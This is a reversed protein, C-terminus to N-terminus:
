DEIISATIFMVVESHERLKNRFRFLNGLLPLDGLIPVKRLEELDSDLILGGIVITEGSKVRVVHDTFRRTIIPLTVAAEKDETLKLVSVEPHLNLTIYGDPSVDGIVRLQVGVNAVDTTVNTGTPTVQVLVIYHVEDGVFFVGPKGELCMLSPSALLRGNGEKIIADLTAAFDFPARFWRRTGRTGESTTEVGENWGIASWDWSLGLKKEGTESLSTVKAEIKIQPPKTDLSAAMDIAKQVNPASGSIVLAQPRSEDKKGSDGAVNVVAGTESAKVESPARLDFGGSPAFTVSIGSVLSMLTQALEQANVHKVLYVQTVEDGARTKMSEEVQNVVTQAQSVISEPGTLVILNSPAGPAPGAGAGAPAPSKVSSKNAQVDPFKAKLLAMMDEANAYELPVVRVVAGTEASSTTLDGLSKPTGVLYTGRDQAYVYGSLKTIWSLAEELTVDNLNVTVSGTVDKGVLINRGTQKSLAKLVDNIDAALFDVSVKPQDPKPTSAAATGTTRESATGGAPQDPPSPPSPPSPSTTRSGFRLRPRADGVALSEKPPEVMAAAAPATVKVVPKAAQARGFKWVSIEVKRRDDSWETSYSVHNSTNVVIRTIPPNSRFNSYRVNYVRGSHIGVLRGKTALRVPFQFGVYVGKASTLPTMRLACDGQVAIIVRDPSDTVGVKTISGAMAASSAVGALLLAALWWASVRTGFTKTRM